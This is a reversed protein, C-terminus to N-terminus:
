GGKSKAPRGTKIIPVAKLAALFAVDSMAAWAKIGARLLESKKAPNALKGARQKLEDLVTYETKPITFSDRVLKPKKVKLPKEAKPTAAAKAATGLPDRKPARAPTTFQPKSPAKTISLSKKVVTNGQKKAPLKAASLPAVPASAGSKATTTM